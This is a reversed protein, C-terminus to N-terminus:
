SVYNSAILKLFLNYIHLIIDASYCCEPTYANCIMDQLHQVEIFFHCGNLPLAYHYFVFNRESFDAQFNWPKPTVQQLLTQESEEMKAQMRMARAM